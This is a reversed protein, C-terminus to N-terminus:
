PTDPHDEPLATKTAIAYVDRWHQNTEIVRIQFGHAELSDAIAAATLNCYWEGTQPAGGDSASHPERGVGACTVIFAGGPILLRWAARILERWRECHEFVECCIVLQARDKTTYDRADCVVDVGPGEILDLGIWDAAPFHERVAGNINRSGIEIVRISEATAYRGVFEFAGPHM